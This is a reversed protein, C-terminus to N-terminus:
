KKHAPYIGKILLKEDMDQLVFQINEDKGSFRVYAYLEGMGLKPRTLKQLSPNALPPKGLNELNFSYQEPPVEAWLEKFEDADKSNNYINIAEEIFKNVKIKQENDNVAVRQALETKGGTLWLISYLIIALLAVVGLCIYKKM